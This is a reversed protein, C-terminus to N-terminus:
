LNISKVSDEKFPTLKYAVIDPNDTQKPKGIEFRRQHGEPIEMAKRLNRIGGVWSVKKVILAEVSKYFGKIKKDSLLLYFDNKHEIVNYYISEKNLLKLSKVARVNLSVMSQTVSFTPFNSRRSAWTSEALFQNVSELKIM